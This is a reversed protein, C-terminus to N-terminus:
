KNYLAMMREVQLRWKFNKRAFGAILESNRKYDKRLVKTIGQALSEVSDPEVLYGVWPVRVIDLPGGTNTSVIPTGSALAEVLVMGFPEGTWKDKSLKQGMSPLVYVSAKEMFRSVDTNDTVHVSPIVVKDQVGVEEALRRLSDKVADPSFSIFLLTTDGGTKANVEPMARILVRVGKWDHLSGVYLILHRTNHPISFGYRRCLDHITTDNRIHYIEEDFGNPIRTINQPDLHYLALADEMIGSSIAIHKKVFHIGPAVLPRYQPYKQWGQHDTGHHTVVLVKEPAVLMAITTFIWTHHIHIVDPDFEKLARLLAKLYAGIWDKV